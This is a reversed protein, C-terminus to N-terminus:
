EGVRDGDYGARANVQGDVLRGLLAVCGIAVFGLRVRQLLDADAAERGTHAVEEDIREYVSARTQLRISIGRLGGEVHECTDEFTVAQGAHISAKRQVNQFDAGGGSNGVKRELGDCFAECEVREALDDEKKGLLLIFFLICSEKGHGALKNDQMSTYVFFHKEKIKFILAHKHIM